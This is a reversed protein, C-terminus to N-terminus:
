EALDIGISPVLLIKGRARGTALHEMAARADDLSHRSDIITRLEGNEMLDVLHAIDEAKEDAIFAKAKRGTLKFYVLARLM